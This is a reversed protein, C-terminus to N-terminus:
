APEKGTRFYEANQEYTWGHRKLYFHVDSEQPPTIGDFEFEKYENIGITETHVLWYCGSKKRFTVRVKDDAIFKIIKRTSCSLKTIKMLSRPPLRVGM